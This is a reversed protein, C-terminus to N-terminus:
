PNTGSTFANLGISNCWTSIQGLKQLPPVRHRELALSSPICFGLKNTCDATVQKYLMRVVSCGSRLDALAGKSINKPMFGFFFSTQYFVRKFFM